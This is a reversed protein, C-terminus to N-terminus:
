RFIVSIARIKNFMQMRDIHQAYDWDKTIMLPIKNKDKVVFAMDSPLTEIFELALM